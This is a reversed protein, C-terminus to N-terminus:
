NYFITCLNFIEIGSYICSASPVILRLLVWSHNTFASDEILWFKVEIQQENENAWKLLNLDHSSIVEAEPLLDM